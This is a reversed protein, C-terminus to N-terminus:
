AVFGGAFNSSIVLPPPQIGAPCPSSTSRMVSVGIPLRERRRNLVGREVVGVFRDFAAAGCGAATRPDIEPSRRATKINHETRQIVDDALFPM